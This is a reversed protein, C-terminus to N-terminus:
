TELSSMEMALMAMSSMEMASMDIVLMEMVLIEGGSYGGDRAGDGTDSDDIGAGGVHDRKRGV